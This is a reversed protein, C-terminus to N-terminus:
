VDVESNLLVKKVIETWSSLFSFLGFGQLAEPPFSQYFDSQIKSIGLSPIFLSGKCVTQPDSLLFM